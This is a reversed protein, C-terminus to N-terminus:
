DTRRDSHILQSVELRNFRGSGEDRVYSTGGNVGDSV